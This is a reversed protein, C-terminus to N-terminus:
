NNKKIQKYYSIDRKIRWFAFICTLYFILSAIPSVLYIVTFLYIRFLKLRRKRALLGKKLVFRSWIRFIRIGKKEISMLDPVIPVAGNSLLNDQLGEYQKNILADSIVDGFRSSGQIDRDSVGAPPFIGFKGKKGSFMWHVITIVSILNKHRDNLVINGVLDGGYEWIKNRVKEQAMIWMNRIGLLTIVQTDKIIRKADESLLFSWFPISPSLFWVQYALIVLDYKKDPDYELPELECPIGRVSEPFADFFSDTNWPFTYPKVPKIEIYDLEINESEFKSTVNDIIQKLQGSQTYYIVLVKKM